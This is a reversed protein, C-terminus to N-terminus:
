WGSYLKSGSLDLIEYALGSKQAAKEGQSTVIWTGGKGVARGNIMIPVGNVLSM